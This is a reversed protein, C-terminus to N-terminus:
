WEKKYQGVTRYYKGDSFGNLLGDHLGCKLSGQRADRRCEVCKRRVPQGTNKKQWPHSKPNLAM